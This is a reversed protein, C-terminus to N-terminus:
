KEANPPPAFNFTNEPFSVGERSNEFSVSTTSGQADVVRWQRLKFPKDEFALSLQGEGSDDTSRLTIELKAPSRVVKTVTVDGSLHIPDRLIFDALTSGLSISSEERTEGDWIHMESGDAVIFDKDPPNYMVRMKGPREIAIVGYRIAGRDNVQIFDASLSKLHNLYSEVRAIDEKDQAVVSASPPKSMEAYAPVAFPLYAFLFLILFRMLRHPLFSHSHFTLDRSSILFM